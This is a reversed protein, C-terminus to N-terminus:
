RTGGRWAPLRALTLVALLTAGAVALLVGLDFFM